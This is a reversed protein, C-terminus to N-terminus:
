TIPSFRIILLSISFSRRLTVQGLSFFFFFFFHCFRVRRRKLYFSRVSLAPRTVVEACVILASCGSLLDCGRPDSTEAEFILSRARCNAREWAFKWEDYHRLCVVHKWFSHGCERFMTYTAGHM